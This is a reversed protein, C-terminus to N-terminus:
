GEQSAIDLADSDDWGDHALYGRLLRNRAVEAEALEFRADRDLPLGQEELQRRTHSMRDDGPRVDVDAPEVFALQLTDLFDDIVARLPETVTPDIRLSRDVLGHATLAEDLAVLSPGLATSRSASHFYHIVPYALHSEAIEAIRPVLAILHLDLQGLDHGNWARRLMEAPTRGLASLYLALSRKAVVGRVVPLVYAISLSLTALGTVAAIPELVEYVGGVPQVGGSGRGIVIAAAYRMRGLVPVPAGDQVTLLREPQGFVLSWGTILLVVWAAIVVLLIVPGGAVLLRPRGLRRRLRSLLGWTVRAIGGAVPGTGHAVSVTTALLDVLALVVLLAGLGTTVWAM